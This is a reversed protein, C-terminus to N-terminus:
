RRMPIAATFASTDLQVPSPVITATRSVPDILRMGCEIANIDDFLIERARAVAIALTVATMARPRDESAVNVAFPDSNRSPHLLREDALDEGVIAAAVESM